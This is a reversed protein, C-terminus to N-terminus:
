SVIRSLESITELIGVFFNIPSNFNVFKGIYKKFGLKKIGFYQVLGVSLIALSITSNLDASNSRFLPVEGEKLKVIISGAGPLLGFWNQLLIFLFFAGVIPFFKPTDKDFVSEFLNYVARLVFTVLYFFTSKKERKFDRNYFYAMVLFCVFVVASLLLSNTVPFGLIHFIPEAKISIHPLM